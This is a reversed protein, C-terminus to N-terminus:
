ENSLHLEFYLSYSMVNTLFAMMLFDVPLLHQLTHPPISGEQWLASNTPICISVSVIYFLTHTHTHQRRLRTQSKTVGHVTARWAGEDM